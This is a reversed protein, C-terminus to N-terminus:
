IKKYCCIRKKNRSKNEKSYLLSTVEEIEIVM